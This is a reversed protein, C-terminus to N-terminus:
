NVDCIIEGGLNKSIAEKSSITGLTTSIISIGYLTERKLIGSVPMYVRKSPKSVMVINNFSKRKQIFKLYVFIQENKIYSFGRIYGENRLVTLISIMFKSFPLCAETNYSINANNIISISNAIHNM